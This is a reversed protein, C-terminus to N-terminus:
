GGEGCVLVQGGEGCVLVQGGGYVCASVRRGGMCVLM